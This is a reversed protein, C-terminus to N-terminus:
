KSFAYSYNNDKPVIVFQHPFFSKVRMSENHGFGKSFQDDNKVKQKLTLVYINQHCLTFFIFTSFYLYM